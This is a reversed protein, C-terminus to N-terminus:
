DDGARLGARPRFSRRGVRPDADHKRHASPKPRGVRNWEWWLWRVVDILLVSLVILAIIALQHEVPRPKALFPQIWPWCLAIAAVAAASTLPIRWFTPFV